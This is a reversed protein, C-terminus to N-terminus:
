RGGRHDPAIDVDSHSPPSFYDVPILDLLHDGIDALSVRDTKKGLGGLPKAPEVVGGSRSSTQMAVM